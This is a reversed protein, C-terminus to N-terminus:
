TVWGEIADDIEEVLRVAEDAMATLGSLGPLTRVVDRLHRVERRASWSVFQPSALDRDTLDEADPEDSDDAKKGYTDM